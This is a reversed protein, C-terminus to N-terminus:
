SEAASKGAVYGSSWAWQLNYGGCKGDVDLIEGAFYIGPYAKLQLSDDLLDFSLGGRTTQSNDFSQYAKLPITFNKLMISLKDMMDMLATLNNLDPKGEPNIGSLLLIYRLLKDNMIGCFGKLPSLGSGAITNYLYETLAEHTYDPFFDLILNVNAGSNIAAVAFRSLNLVPIGSIGNKSFIIEGFESYDNVSLSCRCRTRVGDLTKTDTEPILGCLAPYQPIVSLKLRSEMLKLIRGDTGFVPAAKGGACVILKDCLYQKKQGSNVAELFIGKGTEYHIDTVDTDTYTRAGAKYIHYELADRVSKAQESQPYCYGDREYCTIGIGKFFELVEKEDFQKLINVVFEPSDTRYCEPSQFLNTFNCRGNGTATIKKGLTSNAELVVVDPIENRSKIKLCASYAAILGSAGGGIIIINHKEISTATQINM